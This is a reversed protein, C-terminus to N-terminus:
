FSRSQRRGRFHRTVVYSLLNSFLDLIFIKVVLTTLCETITKLVDFRIKQTSQGSILFDVQVSDNFHGFRYKADASFLATAQRANPDLTVINFRRQDLAYQTTTVSADEFRNLQNPELLGGPSSSPANQHWITNSLEPQPPPQHADSYEYVM